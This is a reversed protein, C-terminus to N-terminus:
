SLHSRIKEILTQLPTNIKEIFDDAGLLRAEKEYEGKTMNTVVIIKTDSTLDNKHLEELVEIGTMHPMIIDLLLLDPLFTKFKSLAVVGDPAIDVTYDHSSLKISYVERTPIDDEAILIKKM